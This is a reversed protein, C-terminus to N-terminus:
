FEEEHERLKLEKEAAAYGAELAKVNLKHFKQPFVQKITKIVADKSATDRVALLYGLAMINAVVPNGLEDRCHYTFPFLFADDRPPEDIYSSDGILIGEDKLDPIYKDCSLQNLAVLVDIRSPKINNIPDESICVESKAAGGRAEPGYSQTVVVIKWDYLGAAQALIRGSTMLGQGGSGAFRAVTMQQGGIRSKKKKLKQM